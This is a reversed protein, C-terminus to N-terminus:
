LIGWLKLADRFLFLSFIALVGALGRMIYFYIKGTLFLSYRAVLLALLVKSGVLLLYFLAIFLFPAIPDSEWSKLLFPGGVAIWFIYPHPNLLNLISGKKLSQPREAAAENDISKVHISEYSLYLVYIAGVFSIVGLITNFGTLRTLVFLSVLVIPLDTLLPAAAVKIGEAANHKLTQTIVLALLPGPSLGASLGLVFGATLVTVM